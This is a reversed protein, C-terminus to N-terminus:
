AVRLLSLDGDLRNGDCKGVGPIEVDEGYQWVTWKPWTKSPKPPNPGYRPIWVPRSALAPLLPDGLFDLLFSHGIYVVLPGVLEEARKVFALTWDIVAAKPLDSNTEIDLCPRLDGRLVPGITGAFHEAQKRADYKPRAFHYAGRAMGAAKMDAWHKSFLPDVYDLAETAKAYCFRRGSKLVEDWKIRAEWHSVDLGEIM